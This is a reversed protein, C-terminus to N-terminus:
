IVAIFKLRAFHGTLHVRREEGGDFRLVVWSGERRVGVIRRRRYYTYVPVGMEILRRLLELREEPTV